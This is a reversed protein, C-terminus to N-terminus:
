VRAYFVTGSSDICCYCYLKLECTTGFYCIQGIPCESATPCHQGCKENADDIGVGCYWHDTADESPYDLPPPPGIPVETPIM